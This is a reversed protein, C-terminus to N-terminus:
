GIKINFLIWKLSFFFKKHSKNMERAEGIIQSYIAKMTIKEM